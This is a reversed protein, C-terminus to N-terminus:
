GVHAAAPTRATLVTRGDLSMTSRGIRDLFQYSFEVQATYDLPRSLMDLAAEAIDEIPECIAMDPSIALGLSALGPTYIAGVPAVVNVAINDAHVEAALGTSLRHIAAKCAAYLTENGRAANYSAYPREPPLVACSGVTLLRGGGQHKMAPLVLHCLHWPGLFYTDIQSRATALPMADTPIYAATGANNVLIDIRGHRALTGAILAERSDASELDLRMAEAKGGRERILAATEEASGSGEDAKLTRAAAVIEAGAAALREAIARGIGRSAGTVVTVLGELPRGADTM